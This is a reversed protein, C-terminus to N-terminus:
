ATVAASSPDRWAIRSLPLEGSMSMTYRKLTPAPRLAELTTQFPKYGGAIGHRHLGVIARGPVRARRDRCGAPAVDRAVNWEERLVGACARVRAPTCGNVEVPIVEM